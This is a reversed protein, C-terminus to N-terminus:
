KENNNINDEKLTKIIQKVTRYRDESADLKHFSECIEAGIKETWEKGCISCCFVEKAM